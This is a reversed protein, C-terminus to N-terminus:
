RAVTCTRLLNGFIQSGDRFKFTGKAQIKGDPCKGSLVSHREGGYTYVRRASLNAKVISGAGGAILDPNVSDISVLDAALKRLTM